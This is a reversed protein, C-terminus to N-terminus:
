GPPAGGLWLGPRARRREEAAAGGEGCGGAMAGHENGSGISAGHHTTPAGPGRARRARPSPGARHPACPPLM